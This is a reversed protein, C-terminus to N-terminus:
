DFSVSSPTINKGWFKTTIGTFKGELDLWDQPAFFPQGSQGYVGLPAQNNSYVNSQDKFNKLGWEIMGAMAAKILFHMTIFNFGLDFLENAYLPPLNHNQNLDPFMKLGPIRNAVIRADKLKNLRIIVTMDAGADLSELCRRIGEELGDPTDISVNTRAILLCDTGELAARAAKVKNNYDKRSLINQQIVERAFGPEAEDEMLVADAGAKLMKECTHYVNLTGSGFGDEIDVAIPLSSAASIRSVAWSLEELSLLGLDPLGNMAMSLEAGSLMLAKFGTLEAARASSCDFVCPALVPERSLLEKLSDKKSM